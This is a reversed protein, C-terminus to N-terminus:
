SITKLQHWLAVFDFPVRSNLRQTCDDTMKPCLGGIPLILPNSSCFPSVSVPTANIEPHREEEKSTMDPGREPRNWVEPAAAKKTTQKATLVHSTLTARCQVLKATRTAPGQDGTAEAARGCESRSSTISIEEEQSTTSRSSAKVARRSEQRLRPSRSTCTPRGNQSNVDKQPTSHIETQLRTPLFVLRLRKAPIRGPAPSAPRKLPRDNIDPPAPPSWSLDNGSDAAPNGDGHKCIAIVSRRHNRGDKSM